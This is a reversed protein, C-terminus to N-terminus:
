FFLAFFSITIADFIYTFLLIIMFVILLIGLIISIKTYHKVIFAEIPPQMQKPFCGSGYVSFMLLIFYIFLCWMM